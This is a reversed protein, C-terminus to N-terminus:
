FDDVLEFFNVIEGKRKVEEKGFIEENRRKFKRNFLFVGKQFRVDRKGEIWVKLKFFDGFSKIIFIIWKVIGM